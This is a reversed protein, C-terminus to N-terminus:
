PQYASLPGELEEFQEMSMFKGKVGKEQKQSSSM